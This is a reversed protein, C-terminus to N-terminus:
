FVFRALLSARRTNLYTTNNQQETRWIVLLPLVLEMTLGIQPLAFAPSTWRFEIAVLVEGGHYPRFAVMSEKQITM